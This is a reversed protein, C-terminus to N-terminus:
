AGNEQEDQYSSPVVFTNFSHGQAAFHRFSSRVDMLGIFETRRAPEVNVVLQTLSEFLFYMGLGAGRQKVDIQDSGRRLGKALYDLLRDRSLSGFPDKVGIGLQRGDCALTVEIREHPDLEVPHNPPLHQFRPKGLVDVPSSILANTLMEEAVVCYSEQFRQLLNLKRTFRAAAKMLAVRDTTRQLFHTEQQVDGGRLYPQLGFLPQGLLKRITVTIDQSDVLQPYNLLNTVVRQALLAPLDAQCGDKSLLLLPAVRQAGGFLERLAGRQSASLRDYDAIVVDWATGAVQEPHQVEEVQLACHDLASRLQPAYSPDPQVLVARAQTM